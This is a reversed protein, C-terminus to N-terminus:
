QVVNTPATGAAPAAPTVARGNPTVGGESEPAVQIPPRQEVFPDGSTRSEIRPSVGRFTLNNQTGVWMPAVDDETIDPMRVIHPTMTLVLDTRLKHTNTETFLRGLFPIDGLFPTKTDTVANSDQILGALFNTE